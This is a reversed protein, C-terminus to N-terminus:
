NKQSFIQQVMSNYLEITHQYSIFIEKQQDATCAEIQKLAEEVHDPDDDAHVKVFLLSNEPYHKHLVSYFERLTRVAFAELGLIYGLLFAPDKQIKYFQSEWMARTVGLESYSDINEGLNKLDNLAVIDHGQEESIHKISRKYFSKESKDSWGAAFALMRTSYSTYYYSQALWKAYAKKNSWDQNQFNSVLENM